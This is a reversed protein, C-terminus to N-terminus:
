QVADLQQWAADCVSQPRHDATEVRLVRGGRELMATLRFGGDAAICYAGFATNCGGEARRL